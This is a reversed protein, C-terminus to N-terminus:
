SGTSTSFALRVLDSKCVLDVITEIQAADDHGLVAGLEFNKSFGSSTLNASGLVARVGDAVAVKSHLLVSDDSCTFVSLRGPFGQAEVRLEELARSQDSHMNAAGHTLMRVEVGRQLASVISGVLVGVGKRELYPSVLVLRRMSSDIVRRIADVYTAKPSDGALSSPLTWVVAQERGSQPRAMAALLRCVALPSLRTPSAGDLEIGADFENLATVVLREGGPGLAGRSWLFTNPRVDRHVCAWLAAGFRRYVEDDGLAASLAQVATM